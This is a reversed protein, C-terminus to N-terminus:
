MPFALSLSPHLSLSLSLSLSPSLSNRGAPASCSFFLILSFSCHLHNSIRELEQDSCSLTTEKLNTRKERRPIKPLLLSIIVRCWCYSYLLPILIIRRKEDSVFHIVDEAGLYKCGSQFGNAM